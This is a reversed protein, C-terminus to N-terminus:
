FNLKDNLILKNHLYLRGQRQLYGFGQKQRPYGNIAVEPSLNITARIKSPWFGPFPLHNKQVAYILVAQCCRFHVAEAPIISNDQVTGTREGGHAMGDLKKM